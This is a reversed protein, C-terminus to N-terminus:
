MHWTQDRDQVLHIKDGSELRIEQLNMDNNSDWQCRFIKPLVKYGPSHLQYV